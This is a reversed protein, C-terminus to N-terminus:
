ARRAWVVRPHNAADRLTPAVEFVGRQDILGRVPGEQATGIELILVGGPRLLGGAQEILRAVVCLGDAGGDLAASPEYDRVGPELTAIEDTPIYPPNALIADFPGRAEVPALLDGAVWEIRDSVGAPIANGRAVELAEPSQDVALFRVSKHRHACAIAICGSGTGVDVALPPPDLRDRFMDLFTTVVLETDPRPILVAPTVRFPLSFFEKRGVLYAVPMGEWRRKVLERYRARAGEEVEREYRTYLQVRECGLAHALLVEADLRPSEAGRRALYETTWTLLKGVTWSDEM